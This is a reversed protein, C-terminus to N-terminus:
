LNGTFHPSKCSRLGRILTEQVRRLVRLEFYLRKEGSQDHWFDACTRPETCCGRYKSHPVEFGVGWTPNQGKKDAQLQKNLSNAPGQM